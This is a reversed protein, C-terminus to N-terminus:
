RCVSPSPTAELQPGAGPVSRIAEVRARPRRTVKWRVARRSRWRSSRASSRPRPSRSDWCEGRLAPQSRFAGRESEGRAAAATADAAAAELAKQQSASLRSWASPQDRHEQCSRSHCYASLYHAIGFLRQQPGLQAGVGGRRAQPRAAAHVGTPLGSGSGAARGPGPFRGRVAPRRRDQHAPRRLRRGPPRGCPSCAGYSPPVLALGVVSAPLTKLVEQAVPASALRQAATETTIAFPALLAKFAPLGDAAWARAPLYGHRRSRGRPGARAEARERCRLELIGHRGPDQREGRLTRWTRRSTGASRTPWIPCRSGCRSPNRARVGRVQEREARRRVRRARPGVACRPCLAGGSSGPQRLPDEGLTRSTSCRRILTRSGRRDQLPAQPRLLEM